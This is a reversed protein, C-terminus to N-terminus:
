LPALMTEIFILPPTTFAQLHHLLSFPYSPLVNTRVHTFDLMSSNLRTMSNTM